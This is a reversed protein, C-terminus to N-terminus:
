IFRFLRHSGLHCLTVNIRLQARHEYIITGSIKINFMPQILYQLCALLTISIRHENYKGM